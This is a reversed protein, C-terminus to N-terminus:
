ALAGAPPGVVRCVLRFGLDASPVDEHNGGRFTARCRHARTSWGGGRVSRERTDGLYASATWDAASGALDRVGFVSVDTPFAGIPEFGLTPRSLRMKCLAPDFHHGWSYPRGDAGRAAREWEVDTPLAYSRGDRESKWAAYAEADLASISVVPLDGSWADGQEDQTPIVFRGEALPWYPAGGAGPHRPARALAEDPRARALDDLFARYEDCSVPDRQIFFAHVRVVREPDSHRAEPDGGLVAAGAPVFVLGPPAADAPDPDVHLEMTEGRRVVVPFVVDIGNASRAVVRYSGLPLPLRLLGTQWGTVATPVLMRGVEDFRDVRFPRGHAGEITLVGPRDLVSAAVSPEADRASREAAEAATLDGAAEARAFRALHTKALLARAEDFTPVQRLAGELTRIADHETREIGRELARAEDETRWLPEKENLSAHEPISALAENALRRAVSAAVRRDELGAIAARADATLEEAMRQRRERERAGELWRDLEEVIARASPPRAAIDKELCRLALAALDPPVVLHPAVAVPPSPAETIVAVLLEIVSARMLPPRGALLEYLIGGLAYVDSAPGVRASDGSAQEPAMYLPTGIPSTSLTELSARDTVVQSGRLRALGFDAVFVEGNRGLIVNAPKLDRHVVDHEHAAQIALCIASFVQVLRVLPFESAVGEDGEVRKEIVERLTRGPLVPMTYFPRGDPLVGADYVPIIHPHALQSTLQAEAVFRSAADTSIAEDIRMAKLAVDRRLVRDHVRHVVGQQGRGLEERLEYRTGHPTAFSPLGGGGASTSAAGPDASLTADLEHVTRELTADNSDNM